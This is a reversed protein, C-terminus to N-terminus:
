SLFKFYSMQSHVTDLGVLLQNIFALACIYTVRRRILERVVNSVQLSPECRDFPVDATEIRFM